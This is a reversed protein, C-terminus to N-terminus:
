RVRDERSSGGGGFSKAKPTAPLVTDSFVNKAIWEKADSGPSSVELRTHSPDIEKFFVGVPTTNPDIYYLAIMHKDKAYISAKPMAELIEQTKAFCTEYDSNVVKVLADKRGRDLQKTSNGLSMKVIELPTACGGIFIGILLIILVEQM